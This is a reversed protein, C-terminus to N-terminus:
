SAYGLPVSFFMGCLDFNSNHLMCYYASLWISSFLRLSESLLRWGIWLTSIISALIYAVILFKTSQTILKELFNDNTINAIALISHMRLSNIPTGFISFINDLIWRQIFIFVTIFTPYPFHLWRFIKSVFFRCDLFSVAVSCLFPVALHNCQIM